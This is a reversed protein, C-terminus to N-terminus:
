FCVSKGNRLDVSNLSLGADLSHSLQILLHTNTPRVFYILDGLSYSSTMIKKGWHGVNPRLERPLICRVNLDPSLITM